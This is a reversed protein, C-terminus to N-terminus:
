SGQSPSPLKWRILHRPPYYSPTDVSFWADTRSFGGAVTLWLNDPLTIIFSQSPQALNVVRLLMPEYGGNPKQDAGDHFLVHGWGTGCITLNRSNVGYNIDMIKAPQTAGATPSWPSAWLEVKTYQNLQQFGYGRFWALHSGAFMPTADDHEDSWPLVLQGPQVRDSRLIAPKVRDQYARFEVSLFSDGASTLGNIISPSGEYKTESFITLPNGVKADFSVMAAQNVWWAWRTSSLAIGQAGSGLSPKPLVPQFIVPDVGGVEGLVGWPTPDKSKFVPLAYRAGQLNLMNMSMADSPVRFADLVQGEADTIASTNIRTVGSAVRVTQGDDHVYALVGGYLQLPELEGFIAEECAPDDTWFCPGRQSVRERNGTGEAM